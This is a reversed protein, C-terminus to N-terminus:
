RWANGQRDFCEQTMDLAVTSGNLIWQRPEAGEPAATLYNGDAIQQRTSGSLGHAGWGHGLLRFLAARETDDISLTGRNASGATDGAVPLYLMWGGPADDRRELLLPGAPQLPITARCGVFVGDVHLAEVQWDRISGYYSSSQAPNTPDAGASLATLLTAPILATLIRLARM